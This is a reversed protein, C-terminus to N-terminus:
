DKPAEGYITIPVGLPAWGYLTGADTIKMNICGHSMPHGFNNHWYAGHIGYGQTKPHDENYFYMTYPVNPLNYYTGAAWSGGAMRTYRLKIWTRFQGTPTRNWKGTSVPFTWITQGGEIALLTQNSLNIEIRKDIGTEEGLVSDRLIPYFDLKPSRLQRGMFVAESHPSYAGTLDEICSISNACHPQRYFLWYTLVLAAILIGIPLILRSKHKRKKM